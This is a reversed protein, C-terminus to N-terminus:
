TPERQAKRAEVYLTGSSREVTDPNPQMLGGGAAHAQAEAFGAARCMLTLTEADYMARHDNEYFLAQVALMPTPRSSAWEPDAKGAYSDLLAGADPVGIRLLRGPKLVRHCERTFALGSGLSLHELMHEHFIADVSDDPLPIGLSLDWCIDARTAFLDVNVWGQKPIWGCGLHLKLSEGRGARELQRRALPRMLRTGLARFAGPAWKPARRLLRGGPIPPPPHAKDLSALYRALRDLRGPEASGGTLLADGDDGDGPAPTL